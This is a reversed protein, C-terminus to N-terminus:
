QDTLSSIFGDADGHLDTLDNSNSNTYGVSRIQTAGIFTIALPFDDGNGGISQKWKVNGNNDTRVIWEDYYGHNSIV